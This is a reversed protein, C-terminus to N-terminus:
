SFKSRLKDLRVLNQYNEVLGDVCKTIENNYHDKLRTLSDKRGDSM